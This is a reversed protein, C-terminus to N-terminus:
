VAYIICGFASFYLLKQNGTQILICIRRENYRSITIVIFSIDSKIRNLYYHDNKINDM